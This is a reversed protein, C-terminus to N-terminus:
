SLLIACLYFQLVYLAKNDAMYIKPVSSRHSMPIVRYPGVSITNTTIYFLGSYGYFVGHDTRIRKWTATM